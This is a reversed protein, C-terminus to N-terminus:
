LIEIANVTMENNVKEVGKVDSVTKSVLAKEADNQAIGTLTVEGERTVVKIDSGRTSRHNKLVLRVQATVSADDIREGPTRGETVPVTSVTMNNVVSTVGDIDAAHEGTLDKQAQTSAEGALTVVGDQVSVDTDRMAVNRRFLLSLRVKREIWKDSKEMEADTETELTNVVRTVGNLGAATAEALNKNSENAASGSLTVVGNEADIKISDDKLHTRYVYTTKFSSEIQDDSVALGATRERRAEDVRVSRETNRPIPTGVTMENNVKDVGNINSVTQTVRAKDADNQAIGTLTVEGERTVVQIDSGRTSRHSTLVHRVHATLTADDIRVGPTREDNVRDGSVTINNKVSKVGDIGATNEAALTKQAQTSAVGGLIVAGDNVSVTTNLINLNQHLSLNSKVKREIWSDSKEAAAEEETEIMSEVRVVGNLGAATKEALRKNSESAVTGRLTVVGDRADIKITDDKLTTRYEHSTKFSSEIQDDAAAAQLPPAFYLVSATVVALGLHHITSHRM